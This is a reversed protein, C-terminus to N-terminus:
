KLIADVTTQAIPHYGPRAQRYIRLARERGQPTKALEEYIPKIYRRRGVTELFEAVKGYAAEYHFKVAMLLWDAQIEDNGSKTLHFAADIRQMGAAGLDPPMRQLFRQWEQTSWGSTAIDNAGGIWAKAVQDVKDFLKSHVRPASAPLGPQNIWEDVPIQKALEPNPDFLTEKM